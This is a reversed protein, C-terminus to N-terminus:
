TSADIRSYMTLIPTVQLASTTISHEVACPRELAELRHVSGDGKLRLQGGDGGQWGHLLYSVWTM